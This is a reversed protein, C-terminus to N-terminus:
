ARNHDNGKKTIAPKLGTKRERHIATLNHIRGTGALHNHAKMRCWDELLGDVSSPATVMNYCVNPASTSRERQALPPHRRNIPM